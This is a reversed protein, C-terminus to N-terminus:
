TAYESHCMYTCKLYRAQTAFVTFVTAVLFMSQELEINSAGPVIASSRSKM